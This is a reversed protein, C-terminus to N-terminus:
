SHVDHCHDRHVMRLEEITDIQRSIPMESISVDYKVIKLSPSSKVHPKGVHVAVHDGRGFEARRLDAAHREAHLRGRLFDGEVRDPFAVHNQM